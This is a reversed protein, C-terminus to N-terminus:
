LLRSERFRKLRRSSDLLGSLEGAEGRRPSLSGGTGSARAETGFVTLPLMLYFADGTQRRIFFDTELHLCVVVMQHIWHLSIWDPIREVDGCSLSQAEIM